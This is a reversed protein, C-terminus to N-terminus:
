RPWGALLARLASVLALPQDLMLHHHAEPVIVIPTGQPANARIYDTIVPVMLKSKAGWIMGVPAKAAKLDEVTKHDDLREWLKPDFCWTWGGEVQKLSRPAIYDLIFPNDCPQAPVLRFRAVAAELTEYVRVHDGFPRGGINLDPPSILTDLALAAKLETGRAGAAANLAIRGGFSHGAFVPPGADFLGSWDAVALAERAYLPISYRERHDSGGMGSVSYAAVRYDAALLPALFSWWHAHAGAGHILLLGPKGREGWAFAEIGAGEVELRAQEPEAAVAANFWDPATV